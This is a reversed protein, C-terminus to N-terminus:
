PYRGFHTGRLGADRMRERTVPGVYTVGGKWNGSGVLMDSRWIGDGLPSQLGIVHCTSLGFVERYNGCTGCLGQRKIGIREADLPLLQGVLMHYFGKSLPLGVFRLGRYHSSECFLKFRESVVFAGEYTESLDYKKSRLRLDLNTYEFDTRYGCESCIALGVLGSMVKDAGGCMYGGNPAGSLRFALTTRLRNMLGESSASPPAPDSDAMRVARDSRLNSLLFRVGNRGAISPLATLQLPLPLESIEKVDVWDGDEWISISSLSADTHDYIGTGFVESGSIKFTITPDVMEPTVDKTSTIPRQWTEDQGRIGEEDLAWEWIPYLLCDKLTVETMPKAKGARYSM